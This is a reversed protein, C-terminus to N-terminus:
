RISSLESQLGRADPNRASGSLIDGVSVGRGYYDHNWDHLTKL